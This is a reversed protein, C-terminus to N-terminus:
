QVAISSLLRHLGHSPLRPQLVTAPGCKVKATLVGLEKCFVAIQIPVTGPPRVGVDLREIVGVGLSLRHPFNQGPTAVQDAAEHGSNDVPICAQERGAPSDNWGESAPSLSPAQQSFRTSRPVCPQRGYCWRHQPIMIRQIHSHVMASREAPWKTDEGSCGPRM